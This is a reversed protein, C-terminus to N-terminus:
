ISGAAELDAIADDTWGLERLIDHTHQGLAPSAGDLVPREGDFRVPPSVMRLTGMLPHTQEEVAGIAKVQPHHPLDEQAVCPACPVGVEGLEALVTESTKDITVDAFEGMLDKMNMIRSIGDAFRTDVALDPRGIINCIDEWHDDRMGVMAVHGDRTKLTQYYESMPAMDIADEDLLTHHMMGDPWLFALCAHLMSIDLHQGKGTDKRALLAATIAQASIFATVKDCILTRMFSFDDGKGQLSTFGAMAQIVHDYAPADALPGETGFGSIAMYILKTNEARLQESGLGLRDMVGPRFNHVLVDAESALKQVVERGADSKIDLAISRKSRNCNNFLASIGAKQSGLMRMPDGIELPEVKIVEAGQSALTMAALSATIMTSLEVVKIGSLPQAPDNAM